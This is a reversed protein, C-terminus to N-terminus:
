GREESGAGREWLTQYRDSGRIATMVERREEALMAQWAEECRKEIGRHGTEKFRRVIHDWVGTAQLLEAHRPWHFSIIRDPLPLRPRARHVSRFREEIGSAQPVLTIVPPDAPDARLDVLLRKDIFPFRIVLVEATDVANLIVELDIGFEEGAMEAESAGAFPKVSRM